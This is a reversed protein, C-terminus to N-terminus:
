IQFDSTSTRWGGFGILLYRPPHHLVRVLADDAEAEKIAGASNIYEHLKGTAGKAGGTGGLGPQNMYDHVDDDADPDYEDDDVVTQLAGLNQTM